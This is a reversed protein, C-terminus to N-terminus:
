VVPNVIDNIIIVVSLLLVFIIGMMHVLGEREPEMPKGRIVEIFVFLIRGGDLGPIPLLNSIGLAISIVAILLIFDQYPNNEVVEIGIQSVGVPSVPRAEQASLNGNILEAPFTIILEMTDIFENTGLEVADVFPYVEDRTGINEDDVVFGFAPAVPLINITIGVRAREEGNLREPVVAIDVLEGEREVTLLLEQGENEATVDQMQELTLIPDGNAELILDDQQLGARDAPTDVAM